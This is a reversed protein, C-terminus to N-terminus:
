GNSIKGSLFRSSKNYNLLQMSTSAYYDLIAKLLSFDKVLAKIFVMSDDTVLLHSITMNRDFRLGYILCQREIYVLLKSTTCM